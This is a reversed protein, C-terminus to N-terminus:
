QKIIKKGGKIYIDGKRPNKIKKGSLDTMANQDEDTAALHEEVGDGFYENRSFICRDGEYCEKLEVKSGDSPLPEEDLTDYRPSMSGIGEFWLFSEYGDISVTLVKRDIGMINERSVSLVEAFSDVPGSCFTRQLRDGPSANFNFVPTFGKGAKTDVIGYCERVYVIGDEEYGQGAVTTENDPMIECITFIERGDSVESDTVIFTRDRDPQLNSIYWKHVVWKKDISFFPKPVAEQALAALFLVQFIIFLFRKM